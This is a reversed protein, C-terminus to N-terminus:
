CCCCVSRIVESSQLDSKLAFLHSIILPGREHSPDVNTGLRGHDFEFFFRYVRNTHYSALGLRGASGAHGKSLDFVSATGVWPRSKEQAAPPMLGVGGIVGFLGGSM